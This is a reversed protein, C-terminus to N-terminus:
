KAKKKYKKPQSGSVGAIGPLGPIGPLGMLSHSYPPPPAQRKQTASGVRYPDNYMENIDVPAVNSGSGLLDVLDEPIETSYAESSIWSSTSALGYRNSAVSETKTQTQTTFGTVNFTNSEAKAPNHKKVKITSIVEVDSRRQIVKPQGISNVWKVFKNLLTSLDFM